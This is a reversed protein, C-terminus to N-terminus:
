YEDRDLFDYLYTQLILKRPISDELWHVTSIVNIRSQNCGSDNSDNSECFSPEDATSGDNDEYPNEIRIKIQRYFPSAVENSNDLDNHTYRETDPDWYLRYSPWFSPGMTLDVDGQTISNNTCNGNENTQCMFYRNKDPEFDIIMSSFPNAGSFTAADDFTKLSGTDCDVDKTDWCLWKNRRDGSYKLWNTDRINRVGELGERAINLAIVRNKVNVNTSIARNLISFAAILISSLLVVAVLVELITEGTHRTKIKNLFKEQLKMNLKYIM